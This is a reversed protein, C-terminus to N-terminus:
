KEQDSNQHNNINTKDDLNNQAEDFFDPPPRYRANDDPLELSKKNPLASSKDEANNEQQKDIVSSSSEKVPTQFYRQDNFTVMWNPHLISFGSILMGNIVAEPFIFLPLYGLYEAIGISFQYQGSTWLVLIAVLSVLTSSLLCSLFGTGMIYIFPNEPQYSEIYQHVRWTFWIPIAGSLIFNLALTELQDVDTLVFGFQAVLAAIMALPWGFMLTITTIGLFHILIGLDLNIHIRWVIALLLTAGLFRHQLIKNGIFSASPFHKYTLFLLPLLLINFLWIQGTTVLEAFLSM